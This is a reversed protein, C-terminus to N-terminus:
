VGSACNPNLTFKRLNETLLGMAEREVGSGTKDIITQLETWQRDVNEKPLFELRSTLICAEVIANFGRNCGHPPRGIHEKVAVCSLAKRNSSAEVFTVDFEFARLYDKLMPAAVEDALRLPPLEDWQHLVARAFLMSDDVFHVVGARRQVLNALTTSGEFPRLVFNQYGVSYEPGMPALHPTGNDNTTAIITEIIM